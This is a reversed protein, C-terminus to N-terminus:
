SAGVGGGASTTAFRGRQNMVEASTNLLAMLIALNEPDTISNEQAFKEMSAFIEKQEQTQETSGINMLEKLGQVQSAAIAINNQIDTAEAQGVQIAQGIAQQSRGAKAEELQQNRSQNAFQGAALQASLNDQLDTGQKTIEKSRATSFFGPGSFAESIGPITQESFAKRAPNATTAEFFQGFQDASIPTAGARGTLLDSTASSTEGALPGGSFGVTSKPDTFAGSGGIAEGGSIGTTQLDSFGAVRDGQFVNDNRGLQAQYLLTAKDLAARQAATTEYKQTETKNRTELGQGSM